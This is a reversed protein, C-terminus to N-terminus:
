NSLAGFMGGKYRASCPVHVANGHRALTARPQPAEASFHTKTMRGGVQGRRVLMSVESAHIQMLGHVGLHILRVGVVVNLVRLPAGVM